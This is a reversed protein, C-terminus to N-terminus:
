VIYFDIFRVSCKATLGGLQLVMYYQEDNDFKINEFAIGQDIGDIYYKLTSKTKSEIFLIMKITYWEEKKDRIKIGYKNSVSYYEWKNDYLFERMSRKKWGGRNFGSRMVPSFCYFMAKHAQYLSFGAHENKLNDVNEIIGISITSKPLKTKFTWVYNIPYTKNDILVNGYVSLNKVADLDNKLCVTDLKFSKRNLIISEKNFKNFLFPHKSTFYEFQHYFLLCISAIIQPIFDNSGIFLRIYGNILLDQTIDIHELLDFRLTTM